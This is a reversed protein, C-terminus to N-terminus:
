APCVTSTSNEQVALAYTEIQDLHSANLVVKPAKLEIVLHEIDDARHRRQARSLMLDVIGRKKNVVKVPDDVILGPDLKDRHAKLVTTLDKDSAWLNYEEGFVWTNQDLIKHLQSREKLKQRAAYDFLIFRM